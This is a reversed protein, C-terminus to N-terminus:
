RTMGQNMQPAVTKGMREMNAHWGAQMDFGRGKLERYEQCLACYGCFTHLLRRMAEGGARAGGAAQCSRLLPLPHLRDGVDGLGAACADDWECLM